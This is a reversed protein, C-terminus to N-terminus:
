PAVKIAVITEWNEPDPVQDPDTTYIELRAAFHEGDAEITSDWSHGRQQAWSILAANADILNDYHGRYTLEAYRGAPLVGAVLRGEDVSPAAVPVGFEIELDPMAVVNYKFFLPGTPAIGRAALTGFLEPLVKGVTEGFPMTVRERIALYPQAPRDVIRPLTLM